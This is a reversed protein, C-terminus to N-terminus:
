ARATRNTVIRTVVQWPLRRHRLAISGLVHPHVAGTLAPAAGRIRRLEAYEGRRICGLAASTSSARASGSMSGSSPSPMMGGRGPVRAASSARQRWSAGRIANPDSEAFM